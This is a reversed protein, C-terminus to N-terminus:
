VIMKEGRELRGYNIENAEKKGPQTRRYFLHFHDHFLGGLDDQVQYDINFSDGQMLREHMLRKGEYHMLDHNRIIRLQHDRNIMWNQSPKRMTYDFWHRRTTRIAMIDPQSILHRLQQGQNIVEPRVTVKLKPDPHEPYHEDGSCEMMNILPFFREDCDMIFVWSCGCERILRTRIHGFGHEINGYQVTAGFQHCLEISGDTSHAGGPGTNLCYINDFYRSGTELLGRLALADNYFNVGLAISTMHRTTVHPPTPHRPTAHLEM